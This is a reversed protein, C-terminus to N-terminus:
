KGEEPPKPLPMWHTVENLNFNEDMEGCFLYSGDFYLSTGTIVEGNAIIIVEESHDVDNDHTNKIIEPLRDKVSIWKDDASRLEKLEQLAAILDDCDYDRDDDSGAANVETEIGNYQCDHILWDLKEDSIREM